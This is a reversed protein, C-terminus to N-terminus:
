KTFVATMGDETFQLNNGSLVGTYTDGESDTFTINSGTLTYTGTMTESETTVVGNTTLRLWGTSSFSGSGALVYNAATVEVKFGPSEYVVVPPAVGNVTKLTYTGAAAQLPDNPGGDGGCAGALGVMAIAALKALARM